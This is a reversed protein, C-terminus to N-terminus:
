EIRIEWIGTRYWRPFITLKLYRADVFNTHFQPSGRRGIKSADGFQEWEKGDSSYEVKNLYIRYGNEFWIYVTNIDREKGLDLILTPQKDDAAPVWLTGFNGDLAASAPYDASLESSARQIKIPENRSYNNTKQEELQLATSDVGLPFIYLQRLIRYNSDPLNAHFLLYAKDGKELVAPHGPAFIGKEPDSRVIPSGSGEKWPGLPNDAVAYRIKSRQYDCHRESYLMFYTANKKFVFPGGTYEPLTMKVPAGQFTHMDEDLKVGM